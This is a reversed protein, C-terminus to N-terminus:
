LFDIRGAPGAGGNEIMVKIGVIHDARPMVRIQRFAQAVPAPVDLHPCRISGAAVLGDAVRRTFDPATNLNV